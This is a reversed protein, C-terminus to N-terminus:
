KKLGVIVFADTFYPDTVCTGEPMDMKGKQERSGGSNLADMIEREKPDVPNNEKERAGRDDEGEPPAPRDDRPPAVRTWFVADVEGSSLATARGVSDVQKLEININLRKGIEALIATNFGAFTGDPAVYDMPPLAGTVAIKVTKSGNNAFEVKKQEGSTADTIYEKVLKDLTGDAKMEAIAKDFDDRLEKSDQRMMFAFGTKMNEIVMDTMRDPEPKDAPPAPPASFKDNNSALYAAVSVPIQIQDVTGSELAMVMSDLTDFYVFSMNQRSIEPADAPKEPADAPAGLMDAAKGIGNQMASYENENVNLVSLVGTKVADAAPASTSTGNAATAAPANNNGCGAIACVAIAAALIASLTRKTKM